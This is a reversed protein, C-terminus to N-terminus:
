FITGFSFVAETEDNNKLTLKLKAFPNLVSKNRFGRLERFYDIGVTVKSSYQNLITEDTAILPNDEKIRYDKDSTAM